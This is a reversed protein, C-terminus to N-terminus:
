DDGFIDDILNNRKSGIFETNWNHPDLESNELETLNNTYSMKYYDYYMLEEKLYKFFRPEKILKGYEDELRLFYVTNHIFTKFNLNHKDFFKIYNKDYEYFLYSIIHIINQRESKNSFMITLFENLLLIEYELNDINKLLKKAYNRIDMRILLKDEYIGAFNQLYDFNKFYFGYYEGHKRCIINDVSKKTNISLIIDKELKTM